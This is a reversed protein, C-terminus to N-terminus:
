KRTLLNNDKSSWQSTSGPRARLRRPCSRRQREGPPASPLKKATTLCTAFQQVCPRAADRRFFRADFRCRWCRRTSYRYPTTTSVAGFTNAVRLWRGCCFRRKARCWTTKELQAKGIRREGRVTNGNHGGREGNENLATIRHLSGLIERPICLVVCWVARM